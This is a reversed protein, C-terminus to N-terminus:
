EAAGKSKLSRLVRDSTAIVQEVTIGDMCYHAERFCDAKKCGLCNSREDRLVIHEHGYPRWIRPDGPGFLAIVRTGVASAIHTACTDVSIVLDMESLLATMVDLGGIGTAAIAKGSMRRQIEGALAADARSGTIFVKAGHQTRLFDAVNAFRESRWQYSPNSGPHIAVKLANRDVEEDAFFKRVVNRASDGLFLKPRRDTARIGIREVLDLWSDVQHRVNENPRYDWTATNWYPPAPVRETLMFGRGFSDYGVRIPTRSLWAILNGRLSIDMVIAMDFHQTHPRMSPSILEDIMPDADLLPQIMPQAMVTLLADPFTDKIAHISSTAVVTDGIRLLDVVLISRINDKTIQSPAPPALFRTAATYALEAVGLATHGATRKLKRLRSQGAQKM